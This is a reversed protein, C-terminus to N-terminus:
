PKEANLRRDPVQVITFQSEWFTLITASCDSSGSSEASSSSGGGTVTVRVKTVNANDNAGSFIQRIKFSMGNVLGAQGIPGTLDVNDIVKVTGGSSDLFEYKVSKVDSSDSDYIFYTVTFQDSSRCLQVVGNAASPNAPDILKVGKASGATFIVTKDTGSFSLMSQFSSPLVNAAKLCASSPPSSGCSSLAPVSPSFQVKLQLPLDGRKLTASTFPQGNALTVKFFTSDDPNMKGGDTIRTLAKPTITLPVCGTNEVTFLAETAAPKVKKKKQAGFLKVTELPVIPPTFQIMGGTAGPGISVAFTCSDQNGAADRVIVTVTHTMGAALLTGAPPIQTKTLSGAPTCNDTATVRSTVDVPVDCAQQPNPITVIEPCSTISPRETDLITVTFRCNNIDPLAASLELNAVTCTVTTTGVPFFAGSPPTCTEKCNGGPQPVKYTVVAGCQRADNPQTINLPCGAVCATTMSCGVVINSCNLQDFVGTTNFIGDGADGVLLTLTHVGQTVPWRTLLLGTRGASDGPTFRRITEWGPFGPSSDCGIDNCLRFFSNDVNTPNCPLRQDFTLLGGTAGVPAIADGIPPRCGEGSPCYQTLPGPNCSSDFTLAQDWFAYVFDNFGRRVYEPFEYSYFDFKFSMSHVTPDTVNFTIDIRATDGICGKPSFDLDGNEKPAFPDGSSMVLVNGDSPTQGYSPAVQIQVSTDGGSMKLDTVFSRCVPDSIFADLIQQMTANLEIDSSAAIRNKFKVHKEEVKSETRESTLMAQSVDIYQKVTTEFDIQAQDKLGQRQLDPELNDAFYDYSWRKMAEVAREAFQESYGLSLIESRLKQKLATQYVEHGGPTQVTASSAIGKRPKHGIASFSGATTLVLVIALVSLWAFCKGLSTKM